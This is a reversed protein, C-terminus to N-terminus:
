LSCSFFALIFFFLLFSLSFIKTRGSGVCSDMEELGEREWVASGRPRYSSGKELWEPCWLKGGEKPVLLLCREGQALLGFAVCAPQTQQEHCSGKTGGVLLLVNPCPPLGEMTASSGRLWSKHYCSVFLEQESKGDRWAALLGRSARESKKRRILLRWPVKKWNRRRGGEM